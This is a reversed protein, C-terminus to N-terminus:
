GGLGGQISRSFETIPHKQVEAKMPESLELEEVPRFVEALFKQCRQSDGEAFLSNAAFLQVLLIVLFPAM